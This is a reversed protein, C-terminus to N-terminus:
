PTVHSNRERTSGPVLHELADIGNPCAELYMCKQKKYFRQLSELVNERTEIEKSALVSNEATAAHQKALKVKQTAWSRNSHATAVKGLEFATNSDVGTPCQPIDTKVSTNRTQLSQELAHLYHTTQPPIPSTETKSSGPILHEMAPIANPYHDLICHRLKKYFRHMSVTTAERIELVETEAHKANNLQKRSWQRNEHASVLMGLLFAEQPALDFSAFLLTNM